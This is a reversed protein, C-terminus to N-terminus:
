KNVIGLIEEVNNQRNEKKSTMINKREIIKFEKFYKKIDNHLHNSYLYNDFNKLEELLKIQKDYNFGEQHYKNETTNENLYPPDLYIFIDNSKEKYQNLLDFVDLNTFTIDITNFLKNYEKLMNITKNTEKKNNWNFPTNFEGKSNERYIGNFANKMLFIFITNIEEIEELKKNDKLNLTNFRKRKQIFFENAEKLLIKIKDKNKTPHLIYVETPYKSYMEESLKSYNEILKNPNNKVSLLLNIVTSNIDNLIYQNINKEELIPLIALFSGMGGLFPEIYIKKNNKISDKSVEKLTKSLWKKGGIWKYLNQKPIKIM